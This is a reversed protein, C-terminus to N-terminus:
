RDRAPSGARSSAREALAIEGAFIFAARQRGIRALRQEVPEAAVLLRVPGLRDRGIDRERAPVPEIGRLHRDGEGHRPWEDCAGDDARGSKGLELGIDGGEIELELIVHKRVDLLDMKVIRVWARSQQPVLFHRGMGRRNEAM